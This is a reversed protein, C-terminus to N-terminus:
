ARSIGLQDALRDVTDMSRIQLLRSMERYTVQDNFTEAVVAWAFKRGTRQFFTKYFDGGGGGEERQRAQRQAFRDREDALLQTYRRSDILESARLRRLVVWTSVKYRRALERIGAESLDWSEAAQSRLDDVPALLEAAFRDCWQENEPAHGVGVSDDSVGSEGLLLHGVEHALTFMQAAKYDQNNIFILPAFDDSLAFGSFEEPDLKRSTNNGVVGSIMVLVGAEELMEKAERLAQEWTAAAARSKVDIGVNEAFRTAASVPSTLAQESGVWAVPPEELSLQYDHYWDQRAQCIFVTDLLHPSPRKPPGGGRVRFDGIPLADDPPGVSFFQGFPTYTAKAFEKLQRETPQKDGALWSPLDGFKKELRKREVGSRECAWELLAPVVAVEPTRAM